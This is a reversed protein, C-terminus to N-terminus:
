FILFFWYDLLVYTQQNVTYPTYITSVSCFCMRQCKEENWLEGGMMGHVYADGVLEWMGERSRVVLPIRAGQVLVIYDGEEAIAPGMGLYGKGTRLLRRSIMSSVSVRFDMESNAIEILRLIHGVVVIIM